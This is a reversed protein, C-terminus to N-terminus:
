RLGCYSIDLDCVGSLLKLGGCWVVGSVIKLITPIYRGGYINRRVSSYFITSTIILKQNPVNIHFVFVLFQNQSWFNPAFCFTMEKTIVPDLDAHEIKYM